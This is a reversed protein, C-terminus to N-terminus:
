NFQGGTLERVVMLDVGEAVERKLTSADVLQFFFSLILKVCSVFSCTVLATESILFLIAVQPLVTAPRLNAFVKLGARLQLLGKEPRLHKENNDWKYRFDYWVNHDSSFNYACSFILALFYYHSM